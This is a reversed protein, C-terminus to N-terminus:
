IIVCRSPTLKKTHEKSFDFFESSLERLMTVKRNFVKLDTKELKEHNFSKLRQALDYSLDWIDLANITKYKIRSKEELKSCYLAFATFPQELIYKCYILKFLDNESPTLKLDTMSFEIKQSNQHFGLFRELLKSKLRGEGGFGNASLKCLVLINDTEPGNEFLFPKELVQSLFEAYLENLLKNEFQKIANLLFTKLDYIDLLPTYESFFAPTYRENAM